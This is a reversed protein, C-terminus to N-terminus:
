RAASVGEDRFVGLRADATGSQIEHRVARVFVRGSLWGVPNRRAITEITMGIGPTRAFLKQSKPLGAGVVQTHKALEKPFLTPLEWIANFKTRHKLRLQEFARTLFLGKHLSELEVIVAGGPRCVRFMERVLAAQRDLRFMHLFNFSTVLDFTGDAFPLSFADGRLLRAHAGSRDLKEVAQDLMATTFDLGHVRTFGASTLTLLGRGTGCGVDLAGNRRSVGTLLSGFASRRVAELYQKEPGHFRRLDYERAHESYDITQKDVKRQPPLAFEQM